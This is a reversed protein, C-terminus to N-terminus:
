VFIITPLESIGLLPPSLRAQVCFLVESLPTLSTWCPTIKQRTLRCAYKLRRSREGEGIAAGEGLVVGEGIIV